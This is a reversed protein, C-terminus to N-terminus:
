RSTMEIIDCCNVQIGEETLTDCINEYLGPRDEEITDLDYSTRFEGILIMSTIRIHPVKFFTLVNEIIIQVQAGNRAYQCKVILTSNCSGNSKLKCM